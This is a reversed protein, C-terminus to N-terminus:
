DKMTLDALITYQSYILPIHQQVPHTMFSAFLPSSQRCYVFSWIFDPSLLFSSFILLCHFFIVHNTDDYKTTTKVVPNHSLIHDACIAFSRETLFRELLGVFNIM